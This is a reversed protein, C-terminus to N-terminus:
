TLTVVPQAELVTQGTKLDRATILLRREADLDFQVEFRAEGPVIPPEPSLFAPRHENLWFRSQSAREESSVPNLKVAGAADFTLEVPM